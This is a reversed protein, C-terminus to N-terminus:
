NKNRKIIILWFSYLKYVLTVIICLVSLYWTNSHRPLTNMWRHWSRHSTLRFALTTKTQQHKYQQPNPHAEPKNHHENIREHIVDSVYTNNFKTLLTHNTVYRPANATARLIESQFRQMIVTISKSACGWLETGYSWIPTNVAKYIPLRNEISLHPIKGILWNIQKTKLDIQKRKRTINEKWNLRYHFQLELCKVVVAV